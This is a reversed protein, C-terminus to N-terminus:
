TSLQIIPRPSVPILQMMGNLKQKLTNIVCDAITPTHGVMLVHVTFNALITKDFSYSCPM